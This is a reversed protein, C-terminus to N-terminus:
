ERAPNGIKIDSLGINYLAKFNKETREKIKETKRHDALWDYNHKFEGDELIWQKTLGFLLNVAYFTNFTEQIDEPSRGPMERPFVGDEYAKDAFTSLHKLWLEQYLGSNRTKCVGTWCFFEPNKLKDLCIAIYHSFVFRITLNEAPYKFTKYQSALEQLSAQTDHWHNIKILANYHNELGSGKTLIATARIYEEKTYNIITKQLESLNEKAAHCLNLFRFNPDCDEIINEVNKFKFPFGESANLALDCILLFIAISPEGIHMANKEVISEFTLFAKGYHGDLYGQQSIDKITLHESSLFSLFQLQIFRAQGELIDIGSIPPVIIESGFYFGTAKRNRLNNLEEYYDDPNPIFKYEPDVASSILSLVTEYAITFSHGISEFYNSTAVTNLEMPKM